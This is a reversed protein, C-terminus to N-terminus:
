AVTLACMEVAGRMPYAPCQCARHLSLFTLAAASAAGSSDVNALGGPPSGVRTTHEFSTPRSYCVANTGNSLSAGRARYQEGVLHPPGTSCGGHASRLICTHVLFVLACRWWSSNSAHRDVTDTAATQWVPAPRPPGCLTASNNFILVYQDFLLCRPAVTVTINASAM